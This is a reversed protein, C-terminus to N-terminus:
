VQIARCRNTHTSRGCFSPRTWVEPLASIFHAGALPTFLPWHLMSISYSRVSAYEIALFPEGKLASDIGKFPLVDTDAETELLDDDDEDTQIVSDTLFCNCYLSTLAARRFCM